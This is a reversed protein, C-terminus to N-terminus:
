RGRAVLAHAFACTVPHLTSPPYARRITYRASECILVFVGTLLVPRCPGFPSFRVVELTHPQFSCVLFAFSIYLRFVYFLRNFRIILDYFPSSPLQTHLLTSSCRRLTIHTHSSSRILTGLVLFHPQLLILTVFLTSFSTTWGIFLSFLRPFHRSPSRQGQYRSPSPSSYLVLGRVAVRSAALTCSSRVCVRDIPSLWLFFEQFVILISPFNEKSPGYQELKPDSHIFITPARAPLLPVPHSTDSILRLTKQIHVSHRTFRHPHSFLLGVPTIAIHDTRHNYPCSSQAVTTDCLYVRTASDSLLLRHSSFFRSTSVAFLLSM